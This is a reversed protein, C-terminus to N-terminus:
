KKGRNKPWLHITGYMALLQYVCFLFLTSSNEVMAIYIWLLNVVAWVANMEFAKGRAGLVAGTLSGGTAIIALVSIM